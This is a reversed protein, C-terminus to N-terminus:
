PKTEQQIEQMRFVQFRIAALLCLAEADWLHNPRGAPIAIWKGNVNKEATMQAVYKANGAYGTPILWRKSGQRRQIQDALMDKLLDPDHTIAEIIASGQGKKGEDPDKSGVTFMSRARRSVGQCPIYGVHYKCWQDVEYTRYRNDIFVYQVKFQDCVKDMAELDAVEGSWVLASDGGSMFQRVVAVLYGKQVDVGAFVHKDADKYQTKYPEVDALCQGEKYQGELEAFVADKINNDYHIFPEGLESNIFDQLLYNTNKAVLFRTVLDPLKTWPAYLSSIHFSVHGETKAKATARWEGRGVAANKQVDTWKVGCVECEYRVTKRVDDLPVGSDFKVQAWKLYQMAGCKHCPIYFRRQDGDMYAQNIVGEPTTPTSIRYIKRNWFTKTRQEALSIPSAETQNKIPYKDTEDEMLYRIARSALNAPSNSGVWNVTCRRMVYQLKTWEDRDDPMQEKLKPSDEIMPMMRTESASRALDETPYVLLVPGPDEAIAYALWIYGVLTLGTQAGKEVSIIQIAPDQFAEFIGRVYPTLATRYLGPFGTAQRVSLYVNKEAWQWITLREAPKLNAWYLSLPDPRTM